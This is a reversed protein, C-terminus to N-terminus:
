TFPNIVILPINIELADLTSPTEEVCTRIVANDSEFSTTGTRLWSNSISKTFVVTLELTSAAAVVPTPYVVVVVPVVVLVLTLM